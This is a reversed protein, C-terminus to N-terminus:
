KDLADLERSVRQQVEALTSEAKRLSDDVRARLEAQSTAEPVNTSAPSVQTEPVSREKDPEIGDSEKTWPQEVQTPTRETLALIDMKVKKFLKFIDCHLM